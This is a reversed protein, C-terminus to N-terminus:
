TCINEYLKQIGNHYLQATRHRHSFSDSFYLIGALCILGYLHALKYFIGDFPRALRFGRMIVLSLTQLSSVEHEDIRTQQVFFMVEILHLVPTFCINAVGLHAHGHLHFHGGM